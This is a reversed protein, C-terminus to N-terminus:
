QHEDTRRCDSICINESVFTSTENDDMIIDEDEGESSSEIRRQDQVLEYDPDKVSDDSDEIISPISSLSTSSSLSSTSDCRPRNCQLQEEPASARPSHETIGRALNVIKKARSEM